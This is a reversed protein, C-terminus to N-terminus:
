HFFISQFMIVAAQMRKRDITKWYNKLTFFDRYAHFGIREDLQKIPEPDALLTTQKDKKYKLKKFVAM